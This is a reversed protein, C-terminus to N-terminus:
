ASRYVPEGLLHEFGRVLQFKLFGRLQTITYVREFLDGLLLLDDGGRDLLLIDKGHDARRVPTRGLGAERHQSKLVAPEIVALMEYDVQGLIHGLRPMFKDAAIIRHAIEHRPTNGNVALDLAALHEALPEGGKRPPLDIDDHRLLALLMRHDLHAARIRRLLQREIEAPRAFGGGSEVLQAAQEPKFSRRLIYFGVIYGVRRAAVVDRAHDHELVAHWIFFCVFM